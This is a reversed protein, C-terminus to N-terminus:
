DAPDLLVHRVDRFPALLRALIELEIGAILPGLFIYVDQPSLLAGRKHEVANRGQDIRDGARLDVIATLNAKERTLKPVRPCTLNQRVGGFPEAIFAPGLIFFGIRELIRNNSAH